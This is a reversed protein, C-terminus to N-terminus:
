ARNKSSKKTARMLKKLFLDFNTKIEDGENVKWFNTVHTERGSLPENNKIRFTKKRGGEISKKSKKEDLVSFYFMTAKLAVSGRFKRELSTHEGSMTQDCM